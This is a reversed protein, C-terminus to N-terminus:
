LLGREAANVLSCRELWTLWEKDAGKPHLTFVAGDSERILVRALKGYWNGEGITVPKSGIFREAKSGEVVRRPRNSKGFARAIMWFRDADCNQYFCKGDYGIVEDAIADIDFDDAYEGLADRISDVAETRYSYTEKM